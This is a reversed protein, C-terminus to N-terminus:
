RTIREGERALVDVRVEDQLAVLAVARGDPLVAVPPPTSIYQEELSPVRAAGLLVGDPSYWEVSVVVRVVPDLALVDQREVVINGGPDTGLYRLNGLGTTLDATLVGGDIELDPPRPTVVIGDVELVNSKEFGLDPGNWIGYAAAGAYELIIRGAGDTLAGSLGDELRFGVPLEITEILSGDFGIRHVRNRVPQFFIEVAILHDANAALATLSTIDLAATDIETRRTGDFSLVRRGIPDYFHLRGSPDVALLSPGTIEQEDGSGAYEV